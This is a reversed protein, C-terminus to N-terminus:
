SSLGTTPPFSTSGRTPCASTAGPVAALAAAAVERQEPTAVAPTLLAHAADGVVPPRTGAGVLLPAKCVAHSLTGALYVLATEGDTDVRTLYPQVLM